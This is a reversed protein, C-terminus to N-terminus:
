KGNSVASAHLWSRVPGGIGLSVLVFWVAGGFRPDMVAVGGAVLAGVVVGPWRRTGWGLEVVTAGVVTFGLSAALGLLLVGFLIGIAGPHWGAVQIQALQFGLYVGGFAIVAHAAVGYLLSSLPKARSSEISRELFREFRWLLGGGGVLVLSFALAGRVSWPAGLLVALDVTQLSTLDGGPVTGAVFTGLHTGGM